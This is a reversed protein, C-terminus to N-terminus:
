QAEQISTLFWPKSTSMFCCLGAPQTSSITIRYTRNVSLSSEAGSQDKTTQANLCPVVVAIEMGNSAVRFTTTTGTYLVGCNADTTPLSKFRGVLEPTSQAGGGSPSAQAVLLLATLYAFDNM